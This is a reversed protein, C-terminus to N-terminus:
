LYSAMHFPFCSAFSPMIHFVGISEVDGNEYSANVAITQYGNSDFTFEQWENKEERLEKGTFQMEFSKNKSPLAIAVNVLALVALIVLFVFKIQKM